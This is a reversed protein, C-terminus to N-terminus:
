SREKEIEPINVAEEVENSQCELKAKNQIHFLRKLYEIENESM